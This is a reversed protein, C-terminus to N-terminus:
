STAQQLDSTAFTVYDPRDAASQHRYCRIVQGHFVLFVGPMQFGDGVLKGAGHRQLVAAQLGRIWVKPGFLMRVDGRRLGFARYLHRHPDSIQPLDELGYKSFFERGFEREGMHVLLMQVGSQELRRRQRALDALAERCFTCGAHRLFVMLVPSTRSLHDISVGNDLRTRLAIPLVEPSIGRANAVHSRRAAILILTFPIWWVVDSAVFNWGLRLPFHGLYLARWFGLPAVVKDLLGILVIPWHRIPDAAAIAYALGYVGTLMGIWQCLEPYIPPKMGALEFGARPFLIVWCGWVINCAAALLLIRRM